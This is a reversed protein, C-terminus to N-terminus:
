DKLNQQNKRVSQVQFDNKNIMKYLTYDSHYYFSAENTTVLCNVTWM